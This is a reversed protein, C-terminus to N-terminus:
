HGDMSVLSRYGQKLTARSPKAERSLKFFASAVFVDAKCFAAAKERGMTVEIVDRAKDIGAVSLMTYRKM